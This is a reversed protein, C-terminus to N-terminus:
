SKFEKGIKWAQGMRGGLKWYSRDNMVFLIPKVKAFDVVGNTLVAEDCYTETIEGILVEHKPFDVSQILKCEMNISCKQIMPATKLDGYFIEFLTGKDVDRGSVLGCYDTLTVMEETPINISFVGNAKIGKLTYHMKNMGLSVSVFDMIGVHAMTNFAPKGEVMAGVLTTPLPYLCNKVGLKTKM